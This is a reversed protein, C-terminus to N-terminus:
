PPRAAPVRGRLMGVGAAGNPDRGPARAGLADHFRGPFDARASIDQRRAQQATATEIPASLGTLDRIDDLGLTPQSGSGGCAALSLVAAAGLICAVHFRMDTNEPCLSRCPQGVCRRVLDHWGVRRAARPMPLLQKLLPGLIPFVIGRRDFHIDDPCPGACGVPDRRHTRAMGPSCATQAAPTEAPAALRDATECGIGPHPFGIRWRWRRGDNRGLVALPSIQRGRHTVPYPLPGRPGPLDGEGSCGPVYTVTRVPSIPLM